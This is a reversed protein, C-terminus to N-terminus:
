ETKHLYDQTLGKVAGALVIEPSSLGCAHRCVTYKETRHRVFRNKISHMKVYIRQSRFALVFYPTFIELKANNDHIKLKVSMTAAFPNIIETPSQEGNRCLHLTIRAM